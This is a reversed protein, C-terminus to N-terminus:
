PSVRARSSVTSVTITPSNDNEDSITVNIIARSILPLPASDYAIIPILFSQHTEYNVRRKLLLEGLYLM